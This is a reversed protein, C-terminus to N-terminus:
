KHFCTFPGWSNRAMVKSRSRTLLQFYAGNFNSKKSQSFRPSFQNQPPRQSIQHGMIGSIQRVQIWGSLFQKREQDYKKKFRSGSKCLIILDSNSTRKHWNHHAAPHLRTCRYGLHSGPQHIASLDRMIQFVRLHHTWDLSCQALTRLRFIAPGPM